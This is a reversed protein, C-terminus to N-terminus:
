PVVIIDGPELAFNEQKGRRSVAETYDFSLRKTETGNARLVFIRNLAAFDTFPGALALVDMVTSRGKLDYRGPTKVQGIVTVKSSRVEKVIVSVEPAAMFESLRSVLLDRVQMATLGEAPVDNLLPLSIMGDPRVPVVRSLDTNSWVVIDLLDDTGIRYNGHVAGNAGPQDRFAESAGPAGFVLSVAVLAVILDRRRRTM